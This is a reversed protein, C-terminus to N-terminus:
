SDVRKDVLSRPGVLFCMTTRWMYVHKLLRLKATQSTIKEKKKKIGRSVSRLNKIHMLSRLLDKKKKTKCQNKVSLVRSLLKLMRCKLINKKSKGPFLIQCKM